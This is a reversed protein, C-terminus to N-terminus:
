EPKEHKGLYEGYHSSIPGILEEIHERLTEGVREADGTHLADLIKYHRRAQFLLDYGTLLTSAFTWYAFQLQDFLRILTTNDSTEVITKHFAFDQRAFDPANGANAAAMMREMLTDMQKLVEPTMKPMALRGALTELWARVTYTDLMEKLSLERVFNGSYPVSEVFGMMELDRLAERVPSQSVGFERALKTETLRQGPKYDGRLIAEILREKIDERLVYRHISPKNETDVTTMLTM